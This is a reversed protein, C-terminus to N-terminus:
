CDKISWWGPNKKPLLRWYLGTEDANFIQHLTLQKEEIYQWLKQKYPDISSTDASLSEGQLRLERIGHRQKFRHLWGQSAKFAEETADPYMARHLMRAKEMILPGSIPTGKSREQVFWLYVAKDLADDDSLRMKKRTSANEREREAVFDKLKLKQKIIDHVTSKGIGFQMGVKTLSYGKERMEIVKLKDQVSM